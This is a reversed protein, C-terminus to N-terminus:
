KLFPPIIRGLYWALRQDIPPQHIEEPCGRTTPGLEPLNERTHLSLAMHTSKLFYSAPTPTHSKVDIPM